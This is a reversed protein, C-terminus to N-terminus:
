ISVDYLERVKSFVPESLQKEIQGNGQEQQKDGGSGAGEEFSLTGRAKSIGIPTKKRPSSAKNM